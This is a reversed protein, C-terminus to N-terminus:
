FRALIKVYEDRLRILDDRVGATGYREHSDKLDQYSIRVSEKGGRVGENFQSSEIDPNNYNLPRKNLQTLFKTDPANLAVRLDQELAQGATKNWYANVETESLRSLNDIVPLAKMYQIREGLRSDEVDRIIEPDGEASKDEYVVAAFNLSMESQHDFSTPIGMVMEYSRGPLIMNDGDTFAFETKLTFLTQPDIWSTLVFATVTKGSNNQVSLKLHGQHKEINVLECSRTLNNVKVIGKDKKTATSSVTSGLYAMSILVPILLFLLRKGHFAMSTNM